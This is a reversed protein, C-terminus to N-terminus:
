SIFSKKLSTFFDTIIISLTCFENETTGSVTQHVQPCTLCHGEIDLLPLQLKFILFQHSEWNTKKVFIHKVASIDVVHLCKLTGTLRRCWRYSQTRKEGWFTWFQWFRAHLRRGANKCKFLPNWWVPRKEVSPQCIKQLIWHRWINGCSTNTKVSSHFLHRLIKDFTPKNQNQCKTDKGGECDIRLADRIIMHLHVQIQISLVHMTGCRAYAASHVGNNITLANTIPSM